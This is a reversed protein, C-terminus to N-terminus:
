AEKPKKRPVLTRDHVLRVLWQARCRLCLQYLRPGESTQIMSGGSPGYDNKGHKTKLTTRASDIADAMEEDTRCQYFALGDWSTGQARRRCFPCAELEEPADLTPLGVWRPPRGRDEQEQRRRADEAAATEAAREGRVRAEDERRREAAEFAAFDANEQDILRRAFRLGAVTIVGVAAAAAATGGVLVLAIDM